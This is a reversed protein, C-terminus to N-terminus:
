GVERLGGRGDKMYQKGCTCWYQIKDWRMTQHPNAAACQGGGVGGRELADLRALIDANSAAQTM